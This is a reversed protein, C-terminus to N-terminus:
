IDRIAAPDFELPSGTKELQRGITSAETEMEGAVERWDKLRIPDGNVTFGEGDADWIIRFTQTSESPCGLAYNRDGYLKSLVSNESGVAYRLRLQGVVDEIEKARTERGRQEHSEVRPYQALVCAWISLRLGFIIRSLFPSHGRGAKWAHNNAVDIGSLASYTVALSTHGAGQVPQSFVKFFATGVHQENLTGQVVHRHIKNFSNTIDDISRLLPRLRSLEEGEELAGCQQLYWLSWGLGLVGAVLDAGSETYGKSGDLARRSQKSGVYDVEDCHLKSRIDDSGNEELDKAASIISQRASAIVSDYIEVPDMNGCLVQNIPLLKAPNKILDAALPLPVDQMLVPWRVRRLWPSSTISLPNATPQLPSLTSADLAAASAKSALLAEFAGVAPHITSEGEVPRDPLPGPLSVPFWGGRDTWTQAMCGRMSGGKCGKQHERAKSQEVEVKGCSCLWASVKKLHPHPPGNAPLPPLDEPAIATGTQHILKTLVPLHASIDVGSPRDAPTETSPLYLTDQHSPKQFHRSLRRSTIACKCTSCILAKHSSDYVLNFSALSAFSPSSSSGQASM